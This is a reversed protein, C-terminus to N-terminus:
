DRTQEERVTALALAVVWGILTWGLFINVVLVAEKYKSNTAWALASPIVYVCSSVVLIILALITYALLM